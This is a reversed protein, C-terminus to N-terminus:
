KQNFYKFYNVTEKYDAEDAFIDMKQGIALAFDVYGAATATILNGDEVVNQNLFDTNNFSDFENISLLRM